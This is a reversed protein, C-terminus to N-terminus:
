KASKPSRVTGSWQVKGCRAAAVIAARGADTLYVFCDDDAIVSGNTTVLWDADHCQNFVDPHTLTSVDDLFPLLAPDEHNMKGGAAEVVKLCALREETMEM